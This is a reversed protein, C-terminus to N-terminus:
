KKATKNIHSAVQSAIQEMGKVTPHGSRKDIDKLEICDVGYHRCIEKVSDNIEDKLGDNLLVYVDVNPYRDAVEALMYAMAPRFSYLDYRTWDGYKYEGIPSNAWSDNTGGFILIVDPRGLNGVRTIFSRDSYDDDHYGTNCITAGSFSNNECLKYGNDKIFKHWWTQSVKSVDTKDETPHTDYWIRNKDSTMYGAFTSYSDGLISVSKGNSAASMGTWGVILAVSLVIFQRYITKM